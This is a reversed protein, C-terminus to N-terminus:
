PASLKVKRTFSPLTSLARAVTDIVMIPTFSAGSANLTGEVRVYSDNDDFRLEIGPAVTLSGSSAIMLSYNNRVRYKSLGDVVGLTRTGNVTGYIDIYPNGATYTNGTVGSLNVDPESIIFPTSSTFTNGTISPTGGGDYWLYQM